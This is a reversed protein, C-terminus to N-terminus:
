FVDVRICRSLVYEDKSVILTHHVKSTRQVSKWRLGRLLNIIKKGTIGRWERPTMKVIWTSAMSTQSIAIRTGGLARICPPVTEQTPTMIEIKLPSHYAAIIVSLIVLRAQFFTNETLIKHYHAQFLSSQFMKCLSHLNGLCCYGKLRPFIDESCDYKSFDNQFLSFYSM